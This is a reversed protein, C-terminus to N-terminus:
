QNRSREFSSLSRFLSATHELFALCKSGLSIPATIPSALNDIIACDLQLLLCTTQFLFGLNGLLQHKARHRLFIFRNAERCKISIAVLTPKGLPTVKVSPVSCHRHFCFEGQKSSNSTLQCLRRTPTNRSGAFKPGSPLFDLLLFSRKNSGSGFSSSGPGRSPSVPGLPPQDIPNKAMASPVMQNRVM